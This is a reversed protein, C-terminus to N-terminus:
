KVMPCPVVVLSRSLPFPHFRYPHLRGIRHSFLLRPFTHNRNQGVTHYVERCKFGPIDPRHHLREPIKINQFLHQWRLGHLFLFLFHDNLYHIVLLRRKGCRMKWSKNTVTTTPKWGQRVQELAVVVSHTKSFDMWSFLLTMIGYPIIFYYYLQM